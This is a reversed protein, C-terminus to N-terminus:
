HEPFSVFGLKEASKISPGLWVGNTESQKEQERYPVKHPIAM